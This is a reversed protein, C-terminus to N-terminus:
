LRRSAASVNDLLYNVYTSGGTVSAGAARLSALIDLAGEDASLLGSLDLTLTSVSDEFQDRLAGADAAELRGEIRVTLRGADDTQSIRVSMTRAGRKEEYCSLGPIQAAFFSAFVM